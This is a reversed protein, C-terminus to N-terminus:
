GWGEGEGGGGTGTPDGFSVMPDCLAAKIVQPPRASMPVSLRVDGMMGQPPHCGAQVVRHQPHHCKPTVAVWRLPKSASPPRHCMPHHCKPPVTVCPSTSISHPPPVQPPPSPAVASRDPPASPVCPCLPTTASPPCLPVTPRQCKHPVNLPSNPLMLEPWATRSRSRRRHPRLPASPSLRLQATVGLGVAGGLRRVQAISVGTLAEVASPLKTVVGLIEAPLRGVGIDGSGGAVVTVRRTGLLPQAVAEAVQGM